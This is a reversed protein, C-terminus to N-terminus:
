TILEYTAPCHKQMHYRLMVCPKDTLVARSHALFSLPHLFPNYLFLDLDDVAYPVLYLCLISSTLLLPCLEAYFLFMVFNNTIINYLNLVASNYVLLLLGHQAGRVCDRAANGRAESAGSSKPCVKVFHATDPTM